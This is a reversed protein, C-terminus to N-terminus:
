RPVTFSIDNTRGPLGSSQADVTAAPAIIKYGPGDPNPHFRLPKGDIPDRPVEKSVHPTLENTTPLRGNNRARFIEIELAALACRLRAELLVEKPAVNMLVPLSAGSWLYVFPHDNLEAMIEAEVRRSEALMAPSKLAAADALKGVNRLYYAHDRSQIGLGMRLNYFGRRAFEPWEPSIPPTGGWNFMQEYDDFTLTRGTNAFAREGILARHLTRQCDDAAKTTIKALEVLDAEPFKAVSVVREMGALQISLCAIRVLESILLPEQALTHALAFGSILSRAAGSADGREAKLVAEWRLLQALGKVRTLHTFDIDTAKSLDTPYRSRELGAAEHVLKLTEENKAVHTALWAVVM